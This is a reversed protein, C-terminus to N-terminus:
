AAPSAAGASNPPSRWASPVAASSSSRPTHKCSPIPDCDQRAPICQGAGAPFSNTPHLRRRRCTPFFSAFKRKWTRPKSPSRTRWCRSTQLPPAPMPPFAPRRTGHRRRRRASRDLRARRRRCHQGGGLEASRRDRGGHHRDGVHRPHHRQGARDGARRRRGRVPDLRDSRRNGRDGQGNARGAVEGRGRGRRLGQRSRRRARSRHHCQARASQDPRRHGPDPGVVEGIRTAAQGLEAMTTVTREAESVARGAVDTSKAAQTSIEAISAALEEVSSAAATVNESAASVRTRPPMPKADVRTDAAKNVDSSTMELKM